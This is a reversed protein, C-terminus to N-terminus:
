PVRGEGRQHAGREAMEREHEAVEPDLRIKEALREEEATPVETAGPPVRADRAEEERTRADPNTRDTM